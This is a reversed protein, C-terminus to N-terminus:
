GETQDTAQDTAQQPNAVAPAAPRARRSCASAPSRPLPSPRALRGGSCRGRSARTPRGGRCPAGWGVRLLPLTCATSPLRSARIPM